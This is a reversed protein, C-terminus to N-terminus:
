YRRFRSPALLLRLANLATYKFSKKYHAHSWHNSVSVAAQQVHIAATHSLGKPTPQFSYGATAVQEAIATWLPTSDVKGPASTSTTESRVGTLTKKIYDSSLIRFREDQLTRPLGANAEISNQLRKTIAAVNLTSQFGQRQFSKPVLASLQFQERPLREDDNRYAGGAAVIIATMHAVTFADSVVPAMERQVRQIEELILEDSKTAVHEKRIIRNFKATCIRLQSEDEEPEDALTIIDNLT